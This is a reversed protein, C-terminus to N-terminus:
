NTPCPMGITRDRIHFARRGRCSTVAKVNMNKANGHRTTKRVGDNLPRFMKSLTTESDSYVRKHCYFSLHIDCRTKIDLLGLKYHMKGRNTRNNIKLILRCAVNQILQLQNLKEKTAVMYIVDGHDLHPLLLSKYLMLAVGQNLQVRAKKVAGLKM